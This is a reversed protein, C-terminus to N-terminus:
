AARVTVSRDSGRRRFTGDRLLVTALVVLWLLFVSINIREWAEDSLPWWGPQLGRIPDSWDDRWPAAVFRRRLDAVGQALHPSWRIAERSRRCLPHRAAYGSHFSCKDYRATSPCHGSRM